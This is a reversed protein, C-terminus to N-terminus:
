DQRGQYVGVVSNEGGSTMGEITKGVRSKLSEFGPQVKEGLWQVTPQFTNVLSSQTWYPQKAVATLQVLFIILINILYGRAFGFMGGLLRNFISIGGGEVVRTAFYGLLSGIIITGFFLVIFSVSLPFLSPTEGSGICANALPKAFTSAIFFAAIWTLLSIIEKVGGRFLGGLISIFFVAILAYDVGNLVM